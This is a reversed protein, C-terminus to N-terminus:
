PPDRRDAGRISAAQHPRQGTAMEFLVTGLAFLDTRADCPRGELQEPAMYAVSGAFRDETGEWTETTDSQADEAGRRRLEAIGFDLLKAGVETLM